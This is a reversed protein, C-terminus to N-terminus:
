VLKDGIPVLLNLAPLERGLAVESGKRRQGGPRFDFGAKLAKTCFIYSLRAPVELNIV